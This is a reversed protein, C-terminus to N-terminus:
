ICVGVDKIYALTRRSNPPTNNWPLYKGLGGASRLYRAHRQKLVGRQVPTFDRKMNITLNIPVCHPGYRVQNCLNPEIKTPDPLSSSGKV